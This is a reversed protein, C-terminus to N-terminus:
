KFVLHFGESSWIIDWKLLLLLNLMIVVCVQYNKETECLTAWFAKHNNQLTYPSMHGNYFTSWKAKHIYVHIHISASHIIFYKMSVKILSLVLFSFTNTIFSSETRKTIYYNLECHSTFRFYSPQFYMGNNISWTVHILKCGKKM